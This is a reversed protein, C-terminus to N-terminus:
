KPPDDQSQEISQDSFDRKQGNSFQKIDMIYYVLQTM